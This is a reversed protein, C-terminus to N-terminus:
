YAPNQFSRRQSSSTPLAGHPARGWRGAEWSPERCAGSQAVLAAEVEREARWLLLILNLDEINGLYRVAGSLDVEM